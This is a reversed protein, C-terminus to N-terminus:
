KKKASKEAKSGKPPNKFQTEVTQSFTDIMSKAENIFQGQPDLEMYKQFAEITGPAAVMKGDAAVSAKATLCIAKRYYAVGYNPDAAIAKDYAAAAEDTKGKNELMAGLNFYAKPALQPNLEAAKQMEAQTQEFKDTQGYIIGLNMHFNAEMSPNPKEALISLAKNYAAIAPEYQKVKSLCEALNAFVATQKADLEGALKFAEAAQTYLDTRGPDNPPLKDAQGKLELGKEFTAKMSGFKKMDEQQKAIAEQQEKTLKPASAAAKEREKKLDMDVKVVDALPVKINDLFFALKGDVVLSVKYLAIPLGAHFYHGKKDTKVEYHAKIDKRDLTILGGVIPAGNEDKIDGEISGMQAWLKPAPTLFLFLVAMGTLWMWKFSKVM